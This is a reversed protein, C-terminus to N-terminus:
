KEEMGVFAVVVVVHEDDEEKEDDYRSQFFLPFLRIVNLSSSLSFFSLKSFVVAEEEEERESKM